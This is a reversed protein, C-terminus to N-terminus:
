IGKQMGEHTEIGDRKARTFARPLFLRVNVRMSENTRTRTGEVLCHIFPSPFSWKPMGHASSFWRSCSGSWGVMWPKSRPPSQLRRRAVFSRPM